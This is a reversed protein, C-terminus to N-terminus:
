TVTVQGETNLTRVARMLGFLREGRTPHALIGMGTVAVETTEALFSSDM